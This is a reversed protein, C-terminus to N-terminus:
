GRIARILGFRLAFPEGESQVVGFDMMRHVGAGM